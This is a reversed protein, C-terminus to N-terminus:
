GLKYNSIEMEMLYSEEKDSPIEKFGFHRYLKLAKANDKEVELRVFKMNTQKAIELGKNLLKILTKGKLFGLEENLGLATIYAIKNETDNSYFSVFGVPAEDHYAMIFHGNDLHKNIYAERKDDSTIARLFYTDKFELIVKEAEDFATIEKVTINNDAM